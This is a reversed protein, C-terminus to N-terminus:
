YIKFLDERALREDTRRNLEAEQPTPDLLDRNAIHIVAGPTSAYIAEIQGRKLEVIITPPSHIANM